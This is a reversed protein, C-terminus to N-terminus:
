CSSGQIGPRAPPLLQLHVGPYPLGLAPREGPLQRTGEPLPLLHGLVLSAILVSPLPLLPVLLQQPCRARGRLQAAQEWILGIVSVLKGSWLPQPRENGAGEAPSAM